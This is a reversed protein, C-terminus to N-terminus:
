HLRSILMQLTTTIGVNSKWFWGFDSYQETLSQDILINMGCLIEYRKALPWLPTTNVYVSPRRRHSDM